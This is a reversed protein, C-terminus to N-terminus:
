VKLSNHHLKLCTIMLIPQHQLSNAIAINTSGFDAATYEILISVKSIDNNPLYM